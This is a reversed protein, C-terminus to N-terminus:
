APARILSITASSMSSMAREARLPLRRIRPLPSRTRWTGIWGCSCAASFPQSASRASQGPALSLGARNRLWRPCRSLTRPACSMMVPMVAAAPRSSSVVTWVRLCVNAVVSTRPPVSRTM